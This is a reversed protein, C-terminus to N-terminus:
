QKRRLRWGLATTSTGWLPFGLAVLADWTMVTDGVARSDMLKSIAGIILLTIFGAIAMGVLQFIFNTFVWDGLAGGWSKAPPEIMQLSAMGAGSLLIIIGWVWVPVVSEGPGALFNIIAMAMAMFAM